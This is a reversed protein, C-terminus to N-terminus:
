VPTEEIIEISNQPSTQTKNTNRIKYLNNQDRQNLKALKREYLDYFVMTWNIKEKRRQNEFSEIQEIRQEKSLLRDENDFEQWYLIEMLNTKLSMDNRFFTRIKLILIFFLLCFVSRLLLFRLRSLRFHM